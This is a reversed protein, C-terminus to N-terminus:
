EKLLFINENSVFGAAKRHGGGGYKEAIKACDVDPNSTYISYKYRTGDYVYTSVIPYDDIKDGFVLSNISRNVVFCRMGEIESEFGNRKRYEKLENKAYKEIIKGEGVMKDLFQRQNNEDRILTSWISEFIDYDRAELAYKFRLINPEDLQWCDFKSILQIFRPCKEFDCDNFYMWTLAAGSIGEKRIGLLNNYEPFKEILDMSSQHHDIWIIQCKKTKIIEELSNRTNVSFSLDVFYVTEGNKLKEVPISTSYDYEIYDDKRYNNTYRAVIAGSCKGDIDNHYFCKM